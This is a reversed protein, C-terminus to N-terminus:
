ESKIAVAPPLRSARWAPYIAALAGIGLALSACNVLSRPTIFLLTELPAFPLAKKIISEAQPGFVFALGAGLASGLLTLLLSEAALLMFVQTRSAGIARMVALETTREIIGALLTNFVSLASVAVAVSAVALVLTRVAGILNLFTGMMETFTAVQAGPIKQLRLSAERVLAPDKLRFGGEPLTDDAGSLAHQILVDNFEIVSARDLVKPSFAHTTEDINVTGV